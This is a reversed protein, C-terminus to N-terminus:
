GLAQFLKHNAGKKDLLYILLKMLMQLFGDEKIGHNERNNEGFDPAM